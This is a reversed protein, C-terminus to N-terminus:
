SCKDPANQHVYTNTVVHGIGIDAVRDVIAYAVEVAERGEESPQYAVPATFGVVGRETEVDLGGGENVALAEGGEVRVRLAGVDAGPSVHFLKEVSGGHARVELRIGHPEAALDIRNYPSFTAGQASYAGFAVVAAGAVLSAPRRSPWAFPLVGLALWWAPGAGSATM